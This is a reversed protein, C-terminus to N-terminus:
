FGIITALITILNLSPCPISMIDPSERLIGIDVIHEQVEFDQINIALGEHKYCQYIVIQIIGLVFGCLNPVKTHPMAYVIFFLVYALRILSGAVNITILLLVDGEKILSYYLWLLRSCFSHIAIVPIGNEIKGPLNTYFYIWRLSAFAMSVINGLIGFCLTLPHQTDFVAM